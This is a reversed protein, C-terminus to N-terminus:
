KNIRTKLETVHLGSLLAGAGWAPSGAARSYHLRSLTHNPLTARGMQAEPDEDTPHPSVPVQKVPNSPPTTSLELGPSAELWARGSDDRDENIVSDAVSLSILVKPHAQSRTM